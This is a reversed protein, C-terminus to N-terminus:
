LVPRVGVTLTMSVCVLSSARVCLPLPVGRCVKDLKM